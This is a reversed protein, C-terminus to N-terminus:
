LKALDALLCETMEIVLDFDVDAVAINLKNMREAFDPLKEAEASILRVNKLRDMVADAEDQEFEEMHGRLADLLMMVEAASLDEFEGEGGIDFYRRIPADLTELIDLTEELHENIYGIDDDDAAKELNYFMEGLEPYGIIRANNKLAHVEIRLSNIDNKEHYGKIEAIKPAIKGGFLSLIKKFEEFGGTNTVGSEINLVPLLEHLKDLEQNPIADEQEAQEPDDEIILDEPLFQRILRIFEEMVIPKSAIANMGAEMFADRASPLVNASLAIIPLKRYKEEVAGVLRISKTAEIGDMVPMMHDMLVIHYDNTKVMDCAIQGNEAEDIQMKLPALIGKAVVRNMENDDVLLIRAEPATFSLDAKTQLDAAVNENNLVRAVKACFLPQTVAKLEQDNFVAATPNYLICIVTDKIREWDAKNKIENYLLREIFLYDPKATEEMLEKGTVVQLGMERFMKEAYEVRVKSDQLCCVSVPKDSKLRAITTEDRVEQPIVATFTSGEGYVSDMTIDGGMAIALRRSLALGLGTGEKHHNEVEGVQSFEKFLKGIDEKRIGIGTDKIAFSLVIKGSKEDRSKVKVSLIVYGKETFKIANNMLNVVIQRLRVTDGFLRRPLKPDIDFVLDVSSKGIRSMFMLAMDEFFPVTDYEEAVIDMKGSDFKSVDLIDNIIALLNQGSRKINDLYSRMAEPMDPFDRCIIDTMGVIVNMPTRIEHSVASIFAAKAKNAESAELIKKILLENDNRIKEHAKRLSIQSMIFAAASQLLLESELNAKPNELGMLGAVEREEDKIGIVIFSHVGQNGFFEREIENVYPSDNIDKVQFVDNEQLVKWWSDLKNLPLDELPGLSCGKEEDFWEYTERTMYAERDVEFIYGRDADYYRVLISMLRLIAKENDPEASITHICEFLQEEAAIKERLQQVESITNIMTPDCTIM